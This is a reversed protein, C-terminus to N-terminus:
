EYTFNLTMRAQVKGAGVSANTSHYHPRVTYNLTNTASATTDSVKNQLTYDTQTNLFQGNFNTGASGVFWISTHANTARESIPTHTNQLYPSATTSTTGGDVMKMKVTSTNPCSLILREDVNGSVNQSATSFDSTAKRVMTVTKDAGSTISCTRTVIEGNITFRVQNQNQAMASQAIVGGLALVLIKKSLSM